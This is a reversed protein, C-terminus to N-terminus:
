MRGERLLQITRDIEKHEGTHKMAYKEGVGRDIHWIARLAADRAGLSELRDELINILTTLARRDGIKGLALIAYERRPMDRKSVELTLYPVIAKGARLLPYDMESEPERNTYFENLVQQAERQDMPKRYCSTLVLLTLLFIMTRAIGELIRSM